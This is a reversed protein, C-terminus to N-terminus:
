VRRGEIVWGCDIFWQYGIIDQIFEASEALASELQFQKYETDNEVRSWCIKCGVVKITVWGYDIFWQYDINDQIFELQNQQHQSLSFSDTSRVTNYNLDASKLSM